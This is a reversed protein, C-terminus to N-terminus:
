GTKEMWLLEVGDDASSSTFSFVLLNNFHECYSIFITNLQTKVKADAGSSVMVNLVTSFAIGTVINSHDELRAQVQMQLAFPQTSICAVSSVFAALCSFSLFVVYRLWGSM